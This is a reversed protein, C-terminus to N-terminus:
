FRNSINFYILINNTYGKEYDIRCKAACDETEVLM